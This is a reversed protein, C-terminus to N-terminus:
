QSLGGGPLNSGHARPFRDHKHLLTSYHWTGHSGPGVTNPGMFSFSRTGFHLDDMGSFTSFTGPGGTGLGMFSIAGTGLTPERSMSFATGMTRLIAHGWQAPKLLLSLRKGLTDPGLVSFPGTGSLRDRASFAGTEWQAPDWSSSLGPGMGHTTQLPPPPPPITQTFIQGM